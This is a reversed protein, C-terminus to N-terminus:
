NTPKIKMGTIKYVELWKSNSEIHMLPELEVADLLLRCLQQEPSYPHVIVIQIEDPNWVFENCKSFMFPKTVYGQYPQTLQYVEPFGGYVHASPYAMTLFEGLQKGILIMDKYSMDEQVGFEYKVLIRGSSDILPKSVPWWAGYFVWAVLLAVGSMAWWRYSKSLWSSLGLGITAMSLAIFTPMLFLGYRTAFEGSYAYITLGFIVLGSTAQWEPTWTEKRLKRNGGVVVAAIVGLLTLLWRGQNWAFRGFIFGFSQWWMSLSKATPQPRGPRVLGWGTTEVHYWLWSVWVLVPLGLWVWTSWYKKKALTQLKVVWDKNEVNEKEWIRGAALWGLAPLIILASEKILAAMTLLVGAWGFKGYMGAALALSALAGSPLDIYIIGYEAVAVPMMGSLLAAGVAGALKTPEDVKTDKLLARAVWYASMMLLPLFPWMLIHSVLLSEGWINWAVGLMTMLLPPHAFDSHEAVWPAFNEARLDRTANIVFGASDWHYPLYRTPWWIATSYVIVSVLVWVWPKYFWNRM